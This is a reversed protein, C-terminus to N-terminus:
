RARQAAWDRLEHRIRPRLFWIFLFVPYLAMRGMEWLPYIEVSSPPLGFGRLMSLLVRYAGQAHVLSILLMMGAWILHLWIAARRRRLLLVAGAVLLPALLLAILPALAWVDIRGWAGVVGGGYEQMLWRVVFSFKTLDVIVTSAGVYATVLSAAAIAWPWRPGAAPGRSNRREGWGAVEQRVAPRAFWILIFAPLAIRITIRLSLSAIVFSGISEPYAFVAGIGVALNLLIDAGAYVRIVARASRMRRYILIGGVLAGIAM